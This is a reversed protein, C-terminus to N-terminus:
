VVRTKVARNFGPKLRATKSRGFTTLLRDFGFHLKLYVTDVESIRSRLCFLDNGCYEGNLGNVIVWQLKAPLELVIISVHM